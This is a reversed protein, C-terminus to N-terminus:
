KDSGETAVSSELEVAQVLTLSIKITKKENLITISGRLQPTPYNYRLRYKLVMFSQLFNVHTELVEFNILPYKLILFM